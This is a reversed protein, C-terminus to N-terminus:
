LIHQVQLNILFGIIFMIQDLKPLMTNHIKKLIHYVKFKRVIHEVFIRASAIERTLQEEEPTFKERGGLFPPHLLIVNDEVCEEECRYGRDALILDDAELFDRIRSRRYIEQDSMSGEFGPSVFSVGGWCSIGILFLIVNGAKYDSYTNGQQEFDEPVEIRVETTDICVRFNPFPKFVSPREDKPQFHRSVFM